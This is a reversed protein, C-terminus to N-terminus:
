YLAQHFFRDEELFPEGRAAREGMRDVISRLVRLQQPTAQRAVEEIFGVELHQRVAILELVSNTDFLLGYGLNDLIPDLSFARVRLGSGTRSELIGLAELAKVAERVSARSIGMERALQGEPPLADNPRLGHELIYGRIAEQASEFLRGKPNTTAVPLRLAPASLTSM